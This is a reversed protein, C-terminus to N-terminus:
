VISEEGNLTGREASYRAWTLVKAAKKCQADKSEWDPPIIGIEACMKAVAILDNLEDALRQRNNGAEPNLPNVNELGFLTAKHAAMAVEAAEEAVKTLLYEIANM